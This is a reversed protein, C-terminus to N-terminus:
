PRLTASVCRYVSSNFFLFSNLLYLGLLTIFLVLRLLASLCRSEDVSDVLFLGLQTCSLLLLASLIRSEVSDVSFLGLQTRLLCLLLSLCRSKVSDVLFLGPPARLLRLLHTSPSICLWIRLELLLLLMLVSLRYISTKSWHKDISFTLVEDFRLLIPARLCHHSCTFRQDTLGEM